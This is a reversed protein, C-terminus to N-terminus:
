LVLGIVILIVGIVGPTIGVRVKTYKGSAMMAVFATFLFFQYVCAAIGIVLLAIALSTM